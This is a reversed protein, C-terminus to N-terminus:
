IKLALAGLYFWTIKGGSFSYGWLENDETVVKHRMKLKCSLKGRVRKPFSPREWNFESM